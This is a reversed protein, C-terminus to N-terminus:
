SSIRLIGKAATPHLGKLKATKVGTYQFYTVFNNEGPLDIWFDVSFVERYVHRKKFLQLARWMQGDSSASCDLVVDTDSPRLKDTVFSGDLFIPEPFMPRLQTTAFLEFKDFLERRHDNWVFRETIEETSCDYIGAPLLGLSTLVPIPM